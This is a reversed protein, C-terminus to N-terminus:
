IGHKSVYLKILCYLRRLFHATQMTTMISNVPSEANPAHSPIKEIVFKMLVWKELPPNDDRLVNKTNNFMLRHLATSGVRHSTEVTIKIPRLQSIVDALFQLLPNTNWKCSLTTLFHAHRYVKSRFLLPLLYLSVNLVAEMGTLIYSYPLWQMRCRWMSRHSKFKPLQADFRLKYYRYFENLGRHKSLLLQLDHYVFSVVSLPDRRFLQSGILEAGDSSALVDDEIDECLDRARGYFIALLM